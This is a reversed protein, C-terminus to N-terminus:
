IGLFRKVMTWLTEEVNLEATACNGIGFANGIVHAIYEMGIHKVSMLNEVPVNNIRAMEVTRDYLRQYYYINAISDFSKRADEVDIKIDITYPNNNDDCRVKLRARDAADQANRIDEETPEQAASSPTTLILAIGIGGAIISLLGIDGSPDCRMVPSNLPWLPRNQTNNLERLLM